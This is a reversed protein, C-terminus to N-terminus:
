CHQPKRMLYDRLVVAQNHETDHAGYLLTVPKKAAAEM